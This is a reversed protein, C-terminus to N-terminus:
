TTGPTSASLHRGRAATTLLRAATPTSLRAFARRQARSRPPQGLQPDILSGSSWGLGTAPTASAALPQEATLIASGAILLLVVVVSIRIVAPKRV